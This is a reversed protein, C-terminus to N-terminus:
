KHNRVVGVITDIVKQATQFSSDITLADEAPKLPAISRTRDKRDRSKIESLLQEYDVTEGKSTHELARRKARVEPSAELFFKFDADPFVVTGMDRGEAVVSGLSAVKRQLTLLAKRVGAHRSVISAGRSIEPTRIALSVDRGDVLTKQGVSDDVFHIKLENALRCLGDDDEWDLDIEQAILAVSRYMAGTDLFQFGLTKAVSKAVTSKGAGAPGDITVVRQRKKAGM